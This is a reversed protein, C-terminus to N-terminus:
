QCKYDDKNGGKVEILLQASSCYEWPEYKKLSDHIPGYLIRNDDHMNGYRQYDNQIRYDFYYKSAYGHLGANGLKDCLGSFLDRGRNNSNVDNIMIVFPKNQNRHLVINKILNEYLDDLQQIQNTNYLHSIVYQLILINANKVSHANFYTIADDYCFHVKKIYPSQYNEIVQHIPKWRKNVDIGLYSIEGDSNGKETLFSELAVLDPCAGCGISLVNYAKLAQIAQSLRLLYWIESAYKYQYDCVYFNILNQCDYDKKGQPYKSPFHIEELCLKCSGPCKVHQCDSCIHRTDAATYSTDCFRIIEDILM